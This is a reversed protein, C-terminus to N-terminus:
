SSYLKLMHKVNLLHALEVDSLSSHLCGFLLALLRTDLNSLSPLNIPFNRPSFVPLSILKNFQLLCGTSKRKSMTHSDCSLSINFFVGIFYFFM